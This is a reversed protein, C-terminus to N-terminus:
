RLVNAVSREIARLGDIAGRLNILTSENASPLQARVRAESLAHGAATFRRSLKATTKHEVNVEYKDLTDQIWGLLKGLQLACEGVDAQGSLIREPLNGLYNNVERRLFRVESATDENIM